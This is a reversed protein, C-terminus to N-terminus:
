PEGGTAVSPLQALDDANTPVADPVVATAPQLGHLSDVPSELQDAREDREAADLAAAAENPLTGARRYLDVAAQMLTPSMTTLGLQDSLRDM